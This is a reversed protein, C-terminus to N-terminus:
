YPIYPILTYPTRGAVVFGCGRRAPTPASRSRATVQASSTPVFRSSSRQRRPSPLPWDADRSPSGGGVTEGHVTVEPPFPDQHAASPEDMEVGVRLVGVEVAQGRHPTQDVRRRRVSLSSDRDGIVPPQGGQGRQPGGALLDPV